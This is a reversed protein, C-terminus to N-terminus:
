NLALKLVEDITKVKIIELGNKINDPVESLEKDNEFPILVTKIGGRLAALLKEKLGGIPTIDGRLTIEGTMAVSAKVKKGTLISVMATTMAAGASPGDKPTAGDPVHIHIDFKENFDEDIKLANTKARVVSKAVQISEKMIDKLNGTYNLGGKGKYKTAEITLLDGGVATWALGTVQGVRDDKDALGFRFDEEGLYKKLAKITITTKGKITNLALEKVVKRMIKEITRNLSRVGAERTYHRIIHIIASDSFSIESASLGHNKRQKPILYKKAITLKENEIYGEIHIIEMRDLLAEPLDLSNATAVFMVKSLDYDIELYHDNFHKNQEPDLVELLASAPDGRFDHAIKDLEDLLFLPNIVESKQMKSIITGPIAGIYTRRHGRIEAEDRVGGLAMRVYKRNLSRAISKGLSTKGVGPPGVLCLINAQNNEIRNKVALHELIREKVKELGFHDADLIKQAKPLNKNLKTKKHWPLNIITEIYTRIVSYDSSNSSMRELKKFEEAVKKTAEKPLKAKKIEKKLEDLDNEDDLTGLEKKISKLKEHLYYDRQNEDMQKRVSTNIKKEAKTLEIEKNLAILLKNFTKDINIEELFKQRENTSFELNALVINAISEHDKLDNILSIIENPIKENVKVFDNFKHVVSRALAETQLKTANPQTIKSINTTYYDGEKDKVLDITDIKGRYLGEALIRYENNPLRVMQNIKAVVGVKEVTKSSIEDSDINKQKSLFIHKDAALAQLMANVSTKRGVVLSVVIHPFVVVGKLALLPFNTKEEVPEINEALEAM